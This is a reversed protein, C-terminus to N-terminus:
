QIEHNVKSSYQQSKALLAIAQKALLSYTILCRQQNYQRFAQRLPIGQTVDKPSRQM